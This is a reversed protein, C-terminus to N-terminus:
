SQRVSLVAIGPDDSHVNLILTMNWQDVCKVPM